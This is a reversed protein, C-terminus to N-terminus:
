GDLSTPGPDGLVIAVDGAINFVISGVFIRTNRCHIEIYGPREQRSTNFWCYDMFVMYDCICFVPILVVTKEETNGVEFARRTILVGGTIPWQGDTTAEVNGRATILRKRGM